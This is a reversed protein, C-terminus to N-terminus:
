RVAESIWDDALLDAQSAVWPVFAGEVTRFMLYPLFAVVTGETLGTARATNFNIGIGEPYGQQFVVFMGQGNWGPRWIKLGQKVAVLAQSFDLGYQRPSLAATVGDYWRRWGKLLADRASPGHIELRVGESSTAIVTKGRHDMWFREVRGSKMVVNRLPEHDQDVDLIDFVPGSDSFHLERQRGEYVVGIRYDTM